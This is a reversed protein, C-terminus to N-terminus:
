LLPALPAAARGALPIPLVAMALPRLGRNCLPLFEPMASSAGRQASTLLDMAGNAQHDTLRNEAATAV